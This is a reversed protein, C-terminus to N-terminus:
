HRELIVIPIERQTREQQPGLYEILRAVKSREDGSAIRTRVTFKENGLEVTAVPDKTLNAFWKPAKPAGNDSAIIALDDGYPRYGIVVTRQQGSKAGTTTLLLLQRGEMPGSLQGGNARFEEIVKSNFAKMDTPIQPREQNSSM